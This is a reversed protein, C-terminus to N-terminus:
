SLASVGCLHEASMRSGRISDKRGSRRVLKYIRSAQPMMMLRHSNNLDKPVLSCLDESDSSLMTCEVYRELLFFQNLSPDDVMQLDDTLCGARARRVQLVLM